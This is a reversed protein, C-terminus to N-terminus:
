RKGQEARSSSRQTVGVCGFGVFGLDVRSGLPLDQIMFRFGTDQTM